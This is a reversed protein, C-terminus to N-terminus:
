VRLQYGSLCYSFVDDGVVTVPAIMMDAICRDRSDRGNCENCMLKRDGHQGRSVLVLKCDWFGYNALLWRKGGRGAPVAATTSASVVGTLSAHSEHRLNKFSVSMNGAAIRPPTNCCSSIVLFLSVDEVSGTADSFRM